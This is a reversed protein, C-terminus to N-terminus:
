HGGVSTTTVSIAVAQTQGPAGSVTLTCNGASNPTVDFHNTTGLHVAVTAIANCGSDVNYSGTYNTESANITQTQSTGTGLFSLTAPTVTLPGPSQASILPMGSNGGGCAGLSLVMIFSLVPSRYDNM